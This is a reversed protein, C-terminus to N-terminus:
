AERRPRFLIVGGAALLLFGLAIMYLLQEEGTQPLKGSSDVKTGSGANGDAGPKQPDKGGDGPKNSDKDGPESPKPKEPNEPNPEGPTGPTEPDPEEPTGPILTAMCSDTATIQGINEGQVYVDYKGEMIPEDFVVKGNADTKGTAVTNGNKDKLVVDVNPKDKVTLTFTECAKPNLDIEAACKGESYTVTVTTVENGDQDYATYTGEPLNAKDFVIKGNADTKGVVETSGSKLTLEVNAGIKKGEEKVTVTFVECVKPSM